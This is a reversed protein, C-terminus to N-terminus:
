ESTAFNEAPVGTASSTVTTITAAFYSDPKKVVTTLLYRVSEWDVPLSAQRVIGRM